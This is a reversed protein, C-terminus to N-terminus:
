SGAAGGVVITSGQVVTATGGPAVVGGPAAGGGFITGAATQEVRLTPCGGALACNSQRIEIAELGNGDQVLEASHGAGDQYIAGENYEGFQELAASNQTGNQVITGIHGIGSQSLLASNTGPVGIYAATQNVTATNGVGDQTVAAYNRYADSAPNIQDIYLSNADGRVQGTAYNGDFGSQNVYLTNLEGEISLEATAGSGSQQVETEVNDNGVVSLEIRNGEGNQVTSVHNGNGMQEIVATDPTQAMAPNGFGGISIAAFLALYRVQQKTEATM